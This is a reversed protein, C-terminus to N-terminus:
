RRPASTKRSLLVISQRESVLSETGSYNFESQEQLRRQNSVLAFAQRTATLGADIAENAATQCGSKLLGSAVDYNKAAEVLLLRAKEHSSSNVRDIKDTSHLIKNLLDLKRDLIADLGEPTGQNAEGSACVSTQDTAAQLSFPTPVWIFVSACLVLKRISM